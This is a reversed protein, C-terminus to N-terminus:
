SFGLENGSHMGGFNGFVKTGDKMFKADRLLAWFQEVLVVDGCNGHDIFALGSRVGSVDVNVVKSDLLPLMTADNDHTVDRADDVNSVMSGLCKTPGKKSAMSVMGHAM